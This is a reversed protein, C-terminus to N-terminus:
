KQRDTGPGNQTWLGYVRVRRDPSYRQSERVPGTISPGRITAVVRGSTLNRSDWNMLEHRVWDARAEALGTNSGYKRKLRGSLPRKDASGVVFLVLLTNHEKENRSISKEVEELSCPDEARVKRREGIAFPGVCGHQILEIARNTPAAQAVVGSPSFQFTIGKLLTVGGLSFLSGSIALLPGLGSLRKLLSRSKGADPPVTSSLADYAALFIGLVFLPVGIWLLWNWKSNQVPATQVPVSLSHIAGILARNEKELDARTPM